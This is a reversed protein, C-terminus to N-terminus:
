EERMEILCRSFVNDDPKVGSAAMSAATMEQLREAGIPEGRIGMQEMAKAWGAAFAAQSERGERLLRAGREAPTEEVPRRELRQRLAAVEGELAAMRKELDETTSAM